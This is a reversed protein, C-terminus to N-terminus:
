FSLLSIGVSVPYLEPGRDKQFLPVLDYNAFLRFYKLGLRATLGYRFTNQLFDSKRREEYKVGDLKYELKGWSSLKATGVVGVGLYVGSSRKRSPVQFELILPLNFNWSNLTNKTYAKEAELVATIVGLGDDAINVNDRFHYNNWSTGLGTVLGVSRAFPINFELFNIAFMWSSGADLEFGRDPEDLTFSQDKNMYNNLGLEFGAWHGRFKKKHGFPSLNDWDNSWDKDFKWDFKDDDWDSDEDENEIEKDFDEDSDFDLNEIGKELADIEKQLEETKKNNEEIQNELAQLKKEQEQKLLEDEQLELLQKQKEFEEKSKELLAEQEKMSKEKELLLEEFEKRAQDSKEKQSNYDKNKDIIIIKTDGIKLKTTDSEQSFLSLGWFILAISLVIKKM